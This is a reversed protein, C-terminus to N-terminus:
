TNTQTFLTNSRNALVFCMADLFPFLELVCQLVQGDCQQGKKMMREQLQEWQLNTPM